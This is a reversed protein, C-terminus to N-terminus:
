EDVEIEKVWLGHLNCYEYVKVTGKVGDIDFVAVPEEGPKLAKKEVTGDPYEVWVDTIYHEDLMPHKVEGVQVNLKGNEAKVAPVHKELAADTTGAKLERARNGNVTIEEVEEPVYVAELVIGTKDDKFLKM